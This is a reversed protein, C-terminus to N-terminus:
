RRRARFPPLPPPVAHAHGLSSFISSFIHMLVDVTMSNGALCRVRKESLGEVQPTDIGQFWLAEKGSLVRGKHNVYVGPSQNRLLCPCFERRIPCPKEKGRDVYWKRKMGESTLCFVGKKSPDIGWEELKEKYYQSVVLEAKRESPDIGDMATRELPFPSPWVFPSRSADKRVGVIYLRPRSQPVGFDKSNLVRTEVVYDLESLLFLLADYLVKGRSMMRQVNELLFAKPRKHRIVEVCHFALESRKDEMTFERKVNMSSNLQCPFGCVYLDIGPLLSHDREAMDSFLFRPSHREEIWLRADKGIESSFEPSFPVGMRELAVIPAEIGSCDTGICWRKRGM